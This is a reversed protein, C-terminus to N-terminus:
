LSTAGDEVLPDRASLGCTCDVNLLIYTLRKITVRPAFHWFGLVRTIIGHSNSSSLIQNNGRATQQLVHLTKIIFKGVAAKDFTVSGTLRFAFPSWLPSKRLVRRISESASM